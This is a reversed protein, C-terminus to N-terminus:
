LIQFELIVSKVQFYQQLEIEDILDVPKFVLADGYM